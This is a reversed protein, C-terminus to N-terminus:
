AGTSNNMVSFMRREMAETCMPEMTSIGSNCHEEKSLTQVAIAGTKNLVASPPDRHPVYLHLPFM